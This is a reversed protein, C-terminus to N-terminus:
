RIRIGQSGGRAGLEAHLTIHDGARELEIKVKDGPEYNRIARALQSATAISEGDVASIVDDEEIGAAAAASGAVVGSVRAGRAHDELNVGLWAQPDNSWIHVGGGRNWLNFSPDPPPPPAAHDCHPREGVPAVEAVGVFGNAADDGGATAFTGLVFGVAVGALTCLAVLVAFRGRDHVLVVAERQLRPEGSGVPEAGPDTPMPVTDTNPAQTTEDHM